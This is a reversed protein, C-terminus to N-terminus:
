HLPPFDLLLSPGLSGDPASLTGASHAFRRRLTSQQYKKHITVLMCM